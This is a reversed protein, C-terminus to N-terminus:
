SRLVLTLTGLAPRAGGIVLRTVADPLSIEHKVTVVQISRTCARVRVCVCAYGVGGGGGVPTVIM